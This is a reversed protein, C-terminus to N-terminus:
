IEPNRRMTLRVNEGNSIGRWIIEQGPRKEEATEDYDILFVAEKEAKGEVAGSRCDALAYDASEDAACMRLGLKKLNRELYGGSEALNLFSKGRYMPTMRDSLNIKCITFALSCFIEKWFEAEPDRRGIRAPSEPLAEGMYEEWSKFDAKSIRCPIYPMKKSALFASRHKGSKLNFYGSENWEAEPANRIFFGSDVSLYQQMQMYVNHRNRLVNRKWAATIKVHNKVASRECFALYPGIDGVPDNSFRSFLLLHPVFAHINVDGWNAEESRNRNTYVIESPIYAVCSTEDELSISNSSDPQISEAQPVKLPFEARRVVISDYIGSIEREGESGKGDIVPMPKYIIRRFGAQLWAEKIREHEFVDKVVVLIVDSKKDAAAEIDKKAYCPLGHLTHIEEARQDIYGCIQFGSEILYKGVLSGLSGAGHLFVRTKEDVIYKDM